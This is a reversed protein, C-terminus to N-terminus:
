DFLVVLIADEVL